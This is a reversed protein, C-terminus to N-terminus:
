TAAPRSRSWRRRVRGCARAALALTEGIARTSRLSGRMKIRSSAVLESSEWLSAAILGCEVHDHLSPRAQDDRMTKRGDHGRVDDEDYAPRTTSLPVCSAQQSLASRVSVEVPRLEARGLRRCRCGGSKLSYERSTFLQAHGPQLFAEAGDHRSSKLKSIREPSITEQKAGVAGPLARSRTDTRGGADRRPCCRRTPFSSPGSRPRVM